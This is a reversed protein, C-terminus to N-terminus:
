RIIQVYLIYKLVLDCIASFVLASFIKKICLHCLIFCFYTAVINVVFFYFKTELDFRYM